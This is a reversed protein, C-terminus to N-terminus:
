YIFSWLEKRTKIREEIFKIIDESYWGYPYLKTLDDITVVNFLKPDKVDIKGFNQLCDILLMVVYGARDVFCNLGFIADLRFRIPLEMSFVRKLLISQLFLTDGFENEFEEFSVYVKDLNEKNITIAIFNDSQSKSLPVSRIGRKRPMDIMDILNSLIDKVEKQLNDM